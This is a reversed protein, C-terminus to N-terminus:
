SIKRSELGLQWLERAKVNVPAFAHSPIVKACTVSEFIWQSNVVMTTISPSTTLLTRVAAFLSPPIITGTTPVDHCVLIVKAEGLKMTVESVSMLVKAGAERVLLQLDKRHSNDFAGCFFIFHNDLPLPANQALLAAMRAVGLNSDEYFSSQDAKTPLSRALLRPALSVATGESECEYLWLPSVIPIGALSARMVKVTRLLTTSNGTSIDIELPTICLTTKKTIKDGLKIRVANTLTKSTLAKLTDMDVESLGSAVVHIVKAQLSAMFRAQYHADALKCVDDNSLTVPAKLTELVSVATSLRPSKETGFTDCASPESKQHRGQSTKPTKAEEACIAQGQVVTLIDSKEQIAKSRKSRQKEIGLADTTSKIQKVTPRSRKKAKTAKDGPVEITTGNTLANRRRSSSRWSLKVRKTAPKVDDGAINSDIPGNSLDQLARNQKRTSSDEKERKPELPLPELTLRGTTDFGQAELAQLLSIPLTTERRRRKDTNETATVFVSDVNYEKGGLVYAVNYTHDPNIKTIRAVGGPKNIGSWMRSQVNVIDGVAFAVTVAFSPESQARRRSSTTAAPPKEEDVKEIVYSLTDSSMAVTTDSDEALNPSGVKTHEPDKEMETEEMKQHSRDDSAPEERPPSLSLTTDEPEELPSLTLSINSKNTWHLAGFSDEVVGSVELKPAEPTKDTPSGTSVFQGSTSTPEKGESKSEFTNTSESTSTAEKDEPESQVNRLSGSTSTHEREESKSEFSESTSTAEKDQPKSEYSCLSGSITTQKTKGECKSKVSTFSASPSTARKDEPKSEISKTSGSVSSQAKQGISRSATGRTTDLVKPPECTAAAVKTAPEMENPTPSTCSAGRGVAPQPVSASIAPPKCDEKHETESRQSGEQAIPSLSSALFPSDTTSSPKPIPRKRRTTVTEFSVRRGTSRPPTCQNHFSDELATDAVQQERAQDLIDQTTPPQGVVWGVAECAKTNAQVVLANEDQQIKTTPVAHHQWTAAVHLRDLALQKKNDNNSDGHDLDGGSKSNENDNDNDSEEDSDDSDSPPKQTLTTFGAQYVGPAFGFEVLSQKYLTALTQLQEHAPQLARKTIKTNCEPCKSTAHLSALICPKCFAHGCPTRTPTQLTSLCIGCKVSTGINVRIQTDLLRYLLPIDMPPLPEPSEAATDPTGQEKPRRPTPTMTKM